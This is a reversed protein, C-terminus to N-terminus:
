YIVVPTGISAFNYVREASGVGLRVCGHSVPIGLHNAGEKYGSPWEPLEHIGFKGDGVMAMWFPMYLGYAKSYARPFKNYIRTEMKPTDMGRKGSSIMFSDLVKGEEFISMVQASLNIDIYKGTKIKAVTYKKAQELRIAKDKDWVVKPPLTTEFSSESIKKYNNGGDAGCKAYIELTYKTGYAMGGKPMLKFETKDLNAESFIGLDSNLAFKLSFDATSKKFNVVIPDEIDIAVNQAGNEPINKEIEPYKEAFFIIKQSQIGSFMINRGQPLFIEYKEGPKWFNEPIIELKRNSDKWRLKYNEAPNIKIGANYKDVFVPMSFDVVVSEEPRINSANKLMISTKFVEPYIKLSLKVCFIGAVIIALVLIFKQWTNIHHVGIHHHLRKM